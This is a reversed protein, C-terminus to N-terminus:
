RRAASAPPAPPMRGSRGAARGGGQGHRAAATAAARRGHRRASRAGTRRTCGASSARPRRDAARALGTEATYFGPLEDCRYGVVPVGLTELRELTRGSRPDVQHRQVRRDGPTRALEELDASVDLTREGGQHVGGLGGTAMMRIGVGRPSSSRRPWPRRASGAPRSCARCTARRASPSRPRAALRDLEAACASRSGATADCGRDGARRRRRARGGRDRGGAAPQAPAPHRPLAPDIGARGRGQRRGPGPRGGTVDITM